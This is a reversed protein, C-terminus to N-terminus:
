FMSPLIRVQNRQDPIRTMLDLLSARRSRGETTPPAVLHMDDYAAATIHWNFLHDKWVLLKAALEANTLYYWLVFNGSIGSASSTILSNSPRNSKIDAGM